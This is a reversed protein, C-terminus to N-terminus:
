WIENGVPNSSEIEEHINAKKIARIMDKLEYKNRPRIVIQGDIDEIDVHSGEVISIEKAINSPIRIGLSNGWKRIVADM